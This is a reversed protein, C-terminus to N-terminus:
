KKGDTLVPIRIAPLDLKEFSPKQSDKEARQQVPPWKRSPRWWRGDDPKEAPQYESDHETRSEDLYPSVGAPAVEGTKDVVVLSLWDRVRQTSSQMEHWLPEMHQTCQPVMEILQNRRPEGKPGALGAM